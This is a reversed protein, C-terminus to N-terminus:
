WNKDLPASVQYYYSPLSLKKENAWPEHNIVAQFIVTIFWSGQALSFFPNPNSLGPWMAFHRCAVTWPDTRSSFSPFESSFPTKKRWKPSFMLRFHFNETQKNVKLPSTNKPCRKQIKPFKKAMSNVNYSEFYHAKDLYIYYHPFFFFVHM